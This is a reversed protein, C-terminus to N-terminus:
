FRKSKYNNKINLNTQHSLSRSKKLAAKHCSFYSKSINDFIFDSSKM